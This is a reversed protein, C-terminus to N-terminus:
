GTSLDAGTVAIGARQENKVWVSNAHIAIELDCREAQKL